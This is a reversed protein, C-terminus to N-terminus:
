SGDYLVQLTLAPYSSFYFAVGCGLCRHSRHLMTCTRDDAGVGEGGRRVETNTSYEVSQREPSSNGINM